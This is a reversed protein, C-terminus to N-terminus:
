QVNVIVLLMVTGNDIWYVININVKTSAIEISGMGVHTSYLLATSLM